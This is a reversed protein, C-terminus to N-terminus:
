PPLNFTRHVYRFLFSARTNELDEESLWIIDSSKETATMAIRRFERKYFYDQCFVFPKKRFYMKNFKICWHKMTRRYTSFARMCKVCEDSMCFMCELRPGTYLKKPDFIESM